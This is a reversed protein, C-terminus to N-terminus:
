SLSPLLIKNAVALDFCPTTPQGISTHIYIM